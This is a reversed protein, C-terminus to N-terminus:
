DIVEFAFYLWKKTVPLKDTDWYCVGNEFHWEKAKGFAMWLGKGQNLKSLTNDPDGYIGSYIGNTQVGQVVRIQGIYDEHWHNVMKFKTGVTLARKLQALNKIEAM